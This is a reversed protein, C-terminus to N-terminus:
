QAGKKKNLKPYIKQFYNERWRYVTSLGIELDNAIEKMSKESNFFLHLAKFKIEKPLSNKHKHM